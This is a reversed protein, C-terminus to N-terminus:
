KKFPILIHIDNLHLSTFFISSQFSLIGNCLNSLGVVWVYNNSDTTERSDYTNSMSIKISFNIKCIKM